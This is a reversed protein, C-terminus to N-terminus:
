PHMEPISSGHAQAGPMAKLRHTPSPALVNPDLKPLGEKSALAGQPVKTVSRSDIAPTM